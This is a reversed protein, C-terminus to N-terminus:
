ASLSAAASSSAVASALVLPGHERRLLRQQHERQDGPLAEDRLVVEAHRDIGAVALREVALAEEGATLRSCFASQSLSVSAPQVQTPSLVLLATGGDCEVTCWRICRM